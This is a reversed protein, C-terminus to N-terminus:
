QKGTGNSKATLVDIGFLVGMVGETAKVIAEAEPGDGNSTDDGKRRRGEKLLNRFLKKVDREVKLRKTDALDPISISIEPKLQPEGTWEDLILPCSLLLKSERKKAGYSFVMTTRELHPVIARLDSKRLPKRMEEDVSSGMDDVRAGAIGGAVLADHKRKLKAWIRARCVSAEWYRCIGWCLGSIDLQLLPNALRSKIWGHLASPIKSSQASHDNSISISTVCQSELNTKFTLPIKYLHRPFPSPASLTIDHTEALTPEADSSASIKTSYTLNLPAFVTLYPTPDALEKLAFPNTPDPSTPRPKEPVAKAAFPLLSSIVSSLPPPDPPALASPPACSPNSTTLLSILNRVADADPEPGDFPRETRQAWSELQVVEAKLRELQAALEDRQKQKQRVEEPTDDQSKNDEPSLEVHGLRLTSPRLGERRNKRKEYHASPSSLLGRPREPRKELGLETPTPPLDPEGDEQLLSSASPNRTETERTASDLEAALQEDPSNRRVPTSVNQEQTRRAADTEADPVEIRRSVRRPPAAFAQITGSRRRPSLISFGPSGAATLSPRLAKRDRLGFVREETQNSPRQPSRSPSRNLAHALVEPHSRAM